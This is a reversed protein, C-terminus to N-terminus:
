GHNSGERPEIKTADLVDKLNFRFSKKGAKHAPIERRKAMRNVTQVSVKLAKAVEAAKVLEEGQNMGM